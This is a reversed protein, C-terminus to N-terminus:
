RQSIAQHKSLRRADKARGTKFSKNAKRLYSNPLNALLSM